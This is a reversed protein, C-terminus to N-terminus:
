RAGEDDPGATRRWRRSGRGCRRRSTQVDVRRGTEPDVLSLMGVPPLDLERPDVVHFALVDHRVQLTRM